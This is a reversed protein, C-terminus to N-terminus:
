PTTSLCLLLKGKETVMTVTVAAGVYDSSVVWPM